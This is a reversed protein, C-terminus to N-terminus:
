QTSKRDGIKRAPNGALIIGEPYVGSTVVASGAIVTKEGIDTGPMIFANAGVWVDKELRVPKYTYGQERVPKDYIDFKHNQTWIKVHPGLLVDHGLMVGGGAQIYSLSGISVNYGCEINQPNIIITHECIELNEGCKKFRKGYWSRRVAIGFGGPLASIVWAIYTDRAPASRIDQYLQRILSMQISHNWRKTGIFFRVAPRVPVSIQQSHSRDTKM